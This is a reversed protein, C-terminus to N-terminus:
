SVSASLLFLFFFLHTSWSILLHRCLFLALSFFVFYVYVRFRASSMALVLMNSVGDGGETSDADRARKRHDPLEHKLRCAAGDPCYGQREYNFFVYWTYTLARRALSALTSALFCTTLDCCRSETWLYQLDTGPM